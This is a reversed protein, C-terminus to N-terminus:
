KIETVGLNNVHVLLQKSKPPPFLRRKYGLTIIPVTKSFMVFYYMRWFYLFYFEYRGFIKKLSFFFYPRGENESFPKRRNKLYRNMEGNHCMELVLYVYNNDEFYNYLQFTFPHLLNYYLFIWHGQGSKYFTYRVELISPHKLQCHIKVENQVRQVMGAKYM